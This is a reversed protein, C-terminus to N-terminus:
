ESFQDKSIYLNAIEALIDKKYTELIELNKNQNEM